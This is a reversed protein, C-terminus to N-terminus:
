RLQSKTQFSVEQIISHRKSFDAIDAKIQVAGPPGNHFFLASGVRNRPVHLLQTNTAYTGGPPIAFPATPPLDVKLVTQGASDLLVLTGFLVENITNQVTWHTDFGGNTTWAPSYLTTEEVRVRFDGGNPQVVIGFFLEGPLGPSPPQVVERDGGTGLNLKTGDQTAPEALSRPITGGFFPGACSGTHTDGMFALRAVDTPSLNEIEVSYSRNAKNVFKFWRQGSTVTGTHAAGDPVLLIAGECTTNDARASHAGGLALWSTFAVLVVASRSRMHDEKVRLQRKRM